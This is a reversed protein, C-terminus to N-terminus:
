KRDSSLLKIKQYSLLVWKESRNGGMRSMSLSDLFPNPAEVCRQEVMAVLAQYNQPNRLSLAESFRVCETLDYEERPKTQLGLTNSGQYFHVMEHILMYKQYLCVVNGFGIFANWQRDVRLCTNAPRSSHPEISPPEVPREFFFDCLFIFRSSRPWLGYRQPHQCFWYPDIKLNKYRDFTDPKVCVFEPGSSKLPNPWRNRIATQAAIKALMSTVTQSASNRKFFAIYINGSSTGMRSTPIAAAAAERALDLATSVQTTRDDCDSILYRPSSTSSLQPDRQPPIFIASSLLPFCCLLLISLSIMDPM